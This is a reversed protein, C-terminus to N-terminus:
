AVRVLILVRGLGQGHLLLVELAGLLLEIGREGVEVLQLRGADVGADAVLVADRAALLLDLGQLLRELDEGALVDGSPAWPEPRRLSLSRRRRSAGRERGKAELRCLRPSNYVQGSGAGILRRFPKRCPPCFHGHEWYAQITRLYWINALYQNCCTNAMCCACNVESNCLTAILGDKCVGM